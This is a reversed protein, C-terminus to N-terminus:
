SRTALLEEVQGDIEARLRENFEGSAQAAFGVHVAKVRGDRGLFFTTPWFNLNVAQPLKENWEKMNGGLLVPYDMRYQQIFAHLRTLNDIHAADEFDLSVVELGKDHYKRYLEALFPAEDHCNPCWSGMINVIVVKGQFRADTNSVLQGNLDPFSFKFPENPDRVTTYTTPDSPAPLGLARADQSRYATLAQGDLTLALRGEKTPTIELLAARFGSFHSLIFKGDRYTGTIAGTDGDVRLISASIKPGTQHVILNWARMGKHEPVPIEWVGGITPGDITAPEAVPARVAHFDLAGGLYPSATYVGDLHGEKLTADLKTDIQDFNLVLHGDRLEGGTSPLTQDGNFFWGKVANGDGSFGIQFPLVAGHYPVTANWTGAIPDASASAAALLLVIVGALFKM